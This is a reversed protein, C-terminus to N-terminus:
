VEEDRIEPPQAYELVEETFATSWAKILSDVETDDTMKTDESVILYEHNLNHEWM